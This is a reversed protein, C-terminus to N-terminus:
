RKKGTLEEIKRVGDLANKGYADAGIRRAFSPTIAAGGIIVKIEPAKQNRIRLVNEMEEMTTTMLASLGIVDAKNRIATGVIQEAEVDKGLDWVRFGYNKMVLSVINKGIDHLDGSVTALVVGIKKHTHSELDLSKELVRSAEEMAEAATVLQPLFYTKDEYREGAKRLAPSLIKELLDFGSWGSAMMEETLRAAEQREGELIARFLAKKPREQRQETKQDADIEKKKRFTELFLRMGQKKDLVATSSHVVAMLNADLPNLIASDLGRSMAMPLFSANILGRQPLGFSLNSLGCITAIGLSKIKEITKLTEMAAQSAVSLTLVVPDALVDTGSLGHKQAESFLDKLIRFRGAAKEPIGNEDMALLIVAAGYKRALPFLTEYNKRVGNISNIVAKGAYLRLAEELSEPNMNDLFLPLKTCSQLERVARAFFVPNREGKKGLNVDLACAGAEEQRRASVRVLDLKESELERSLQSRGFPNINEGVPRFPLSGGIILPVNRSAAQFFEESVKRPTRPKKGKLKSALARIHEPGTGCCGGIINAGLRYYELAYSLYEKPGLPYFLKKNKKEPVGANAYVILPKKSRRLVQPLFRELEQPHGGCNIGFIDAQSSGFVIAATEPDSGTVTRGDEMPFSLSVSVPLSSNEKAAQLAMKAELTDIQTEILLIDAGAQELIEAQEAYASYVDEEDLKGLPRILQGVPGMSGAIWVRNKERAIRAAEVAATNVSKVKKEFGYEALKIRNAGFTNTTLIDAGSRIYDKHIDVILSQRELNLPEFFGSHTGLRALIETGIGGDLILIRESLIKDLIM